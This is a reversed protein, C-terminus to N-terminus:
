VIDFEGRVCVGLETLRDIDVDKIGHIHVLAKLRYGLEVKELVVPAPMGDLVALVDGKKLGPQRQFTFGTFGWRTTFISSLDRISKQVLKSSPHINVLHLVASVKASAQEWIPQMHAAIAEVGDIFMKMVSLHEGRDGEGCSCNELIEHYSSVMERHLQPLLGPIATLAKQDTSRVDVPTGNFIARCQCAMTLLYDQMTQLQDECVADRLIGTIHEYQPVYRGQVPATKEGVPEPEGRDFALPEAKGAQRYKVGLIKAKLNEYDFCAGGYFTEPEGIQILLANVAQFSASGFPSLGPALKWKPCTLNESQYKRGLLSSAMVRMVVLCFSAFGRVMSTISWTLPSVGPVAANLPLLCTEPICGQAPRPVSESPQCHWLLGQARWLLELREMDATADELTIIADLTDLIVGSTKLTRGLVARDGSTRCPPLKDRLVNQEFPSLPLAFDLAWSPMGPLRLLQYMAYIRDMRGEFLTLYSSAKVFLEDATISYDPVFVHKAIPSLMERLAYIYDRADTSERFQFRTLVAATLPLAEWDETSFHLLLRIVHSTKVLAAFQVEAGIQPDALIEPSGAGPQGPQAEL